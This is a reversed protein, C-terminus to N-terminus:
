RDANPAEPVCINQTVMWSPTYFVCGDIGMVDYGLGGGYVYVILYLEDSYITAFENPKTVGYHRYSLALRVTNHMDNFRIIDHLQM